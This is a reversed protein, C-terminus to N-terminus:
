AKILLLHQNDKIVFRFSDGDNIRMMEAVGDPIPLLLTKGYQQVLRENPSELAGV